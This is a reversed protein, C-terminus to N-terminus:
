FSFRAQLDLTRSGLASSAQGFNPSGTVGDNVARATLKYPIKRIHFLYQYM